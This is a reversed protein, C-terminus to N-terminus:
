GNKIKKYNLNIMLNIYKYFLKNDKIFPLIYKKIEALYKKKLSTNPNNELNYLNDFKDLSKVIQVLKPSNSLKKYYNKFYNKDFKKNKDITLKEIYNFIRKNLIEKYKKKDINEIEFINHFMSLVVLDLDVKYFLTSYFSVRLPHIKKFNKFKRSIKQLIKLNIKLINNKKKDIFFGKNFYNIVFCDFEKKDGLRIKHFLDINKM